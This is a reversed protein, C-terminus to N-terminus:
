RPLRSVAFTAHSGGQAYWKNVLRASRTNAPHSIAQRALDRMARIKKATLYQLPEGILERVTVRLTGNHDWNTDTIQYLDNRSVDGITLPM